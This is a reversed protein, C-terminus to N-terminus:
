PLDVSVQNGVQKLMVSQGPQYQGDVVELNMLQGQPLQVSLVQVRVRVQQANIQSGAAAGAAGGLLTMATKGRGKGMQSGVAAGALGGLVANTKNSETEIRETDHVSQVVGFYRTAPPATACGQLMLALVSPLLLAQLPHRTMAFFLTM